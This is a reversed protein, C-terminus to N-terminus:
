WASRSEYDREEDPTKPRYQWEGNLRRRMQNSFPADQWDTDRFLSRFAAVLKNRPIIDSMQTGRGWGEPPWGVAWMGNKMFVLWYNWRIRVLKM